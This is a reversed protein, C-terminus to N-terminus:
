CGGDGRAGDGRGERLWDAHDKGGEEGEDEICVSADAGLEEFEEAGEGGGVDLVVDGLEEGVDAGAHGVECGVDADRSDFGEGPEEGCGARLDDGGGAAPDLGEVAEEGDQSPM